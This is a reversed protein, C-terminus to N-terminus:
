FARGPDPVPPPPDARDEEGSGKETLSDIREGSVGAILLDEVDAAGMRYMRCLIVRLYEQWGQGLRSFPDPRWDKPRAIISALFASERPSLQQPSKGFYYRAAPGIGYIGNGWEIINLYIELIRRKDLSQEIAVTILAEELKRSLTREPSLFLNKALQMSITSAGRVVKGAKLNEILSDRIGTKSFGRHSFFGLDEAVMVASILSFPIKRYPTFDPNDPSLLVSIDKEPDMKVKHLFPGKLRNIDMKRGLDLIEVSDTHGTYSYDLSDPNEMELHLSFTGTMSGSLRIDPLSPHLSPPLASIAGDYAFGSFNMKLDIVPKEWGKVDGQITATEGALSIKAIMNEIGSRNLVAQLAFPLSFSELTRSSIVRSCLGQTTLRGNGQVAFNQDDSTTAGLIGNLTLNAFPLPFSSVPALLAMSFNEAQLAYRKAAGKALAIRASENIGALKLNVINEIPDLDAEVSRYFRSAEGKGTKVLITVNTFILHRPSAEGGQASSGTRRPSALRPLEWEGRENRILTLKIQDGVLTDFLESPKGNKRLYRFLNVQTRLEKAQFLPVGSTSCITVDSAKIGCPLCPAVSAVLCRMSTLSEALLSLKNKLDSFAACAALAGALLVIVICALISQLTSCANKGLLGM